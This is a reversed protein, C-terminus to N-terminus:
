LHSSNLRTSKRDIRACFLSIPSFSTIFACVSGFTRMGFRSLKMGRKGSLNGRPASRSKYNRLRGKLVGSVAGQRPFAPKAHHFRALMEDRRWESRLLLVMDRRVNVRRRKMAVVAAAEAAAM